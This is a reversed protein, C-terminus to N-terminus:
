EGLSKGNDDSPVDANSLSRSFTGRKGGDSHHQGHQVSSANSGSSHGYDSCSFDAFAPASSNVFEVSSPLFSRTPPNPYNDATFTSPLTQARSFQRNNFTGGDMSDFSLNNIFHDGYGEPSCEQSPYEEISPFGVSNLVQRKFESRSPNSSDPPIKNSSKLKDLGNCNRTKDLNKPKDASEVSGTGESGEVYRYTEDLDSDFSQGCMDGFRTRKEQSGDSTPDIQSTFKLKGGHHNSNELKEAKDLLVGTETVGHTQNIKVVRNYEREFSHSKKEVKESIKSEVENGGNNDLLIEGTIVEKMRPSNFNRMNGVDIKIFEETDVERNKESIRLNDGRGSSIVIGDNALVIGDDEKYIINRSLIEGVQASFDCNCITCRSELSSSILDPNKTQLPAQSCSCSNASPLLISKRTKSDTPSDPNLTLTKTRVSIFPDILLFDVYSSADIDKPM